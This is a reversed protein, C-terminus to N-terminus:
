DALAQLKRAELVDAEFEQLFRIHFHTPLPAESFYKNESFLTGVRHQIVLGAIGNKRVNPDHGITLSMPQYHLGDFLDGMVESTKEGLRQLPSSFSALLPFDTQFTIDSIYGWKRFMGPRYSLRLADRGWEMMELLIKQSDDTSSLTDVYIAQDYIVLSDILLGNAKGSEFKVGNKTFDFDEPKQPFVAFQYREVLPAVCDLFRVRGGLNLEDLEVRALARAKLIATIEM